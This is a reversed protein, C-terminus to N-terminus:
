RKLTDVVVDTFKKIVYETGSEIDRTVVWNDGYCEQFNHSGCHFGIAMTNIRHRKQEKRVLDGIGEDSPAEDTMLILLRNKSKKGALTQYGHVLALKTPTGGLSSGTNVHVCDKLNKITTVGCRDYDGSWTYAELDIGDIKELSKFLTALMNQAHQIRGQMSGSVDVGIVISTSSKPKKENFVEGYGKALRQIYASMNMTDGSDALVDKRKEQLYRFVKNLKKSLNTDVEYETRTTNRMHSIMESDPHASVPSNRADKEIEDKISRIKEKINKKSDELLKDLNMEDEETKQLLDRMEELSLAKGIGSDRHDSRRNSMYAKSFGDQLDKKAEIPSTPDVKTTKGRKGNQTKPTKTNTLNNLIWPNLINRVFEKALVVTAVKDRGEVKQMIEKALKMNEPILDDRFERALHLYDIPSKIDSDTKNEGMTKRMSQFRTGVGRYIQSMLSEVRQDEIVNFVARYLEIAKDLQELPIEHLETEMLMQFDMQLSEFAYHALEHNFKTYVPIDSPTSGLVICTRNASKDHYIYSSDNDEEVRVDLPIGLVKEFIAKTKDTLDQVTLESDGIIADDSCDFSTDIDSFSTYDRGVHKYTDFISDEIEEVEEIDLGEHFIDDWM